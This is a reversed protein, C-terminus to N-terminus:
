KKGREREREREREEHQRMMVFLDLFDDIKGQDDFRTHLLDPRRVTLGNGFVLWSALYKSRMFDGALEWEDMRVNHHVVEHRFLTLSDITEFNCPPICKWPIPHFELHNLLKNEALEAKCCGAIVYINQDADNCQIINLPQAPHKESAHRVAQDMADFRQECDVCKVADRLRLALLGNITTENIDVTSIVGTGPPPINENRHFDMQHQRLTSKSTYQGCHKCRVMGHVTFLFDIDNPRHSQEWHKFVQEASSYRECRHNHRGYCHHCLYYIHEDFNDPEPAKTWNCDMAFTNAVFKFLISQGIHDVEHHNFYKQKTDYENGCISCYFVDDSVLYETWTSLMKLDPTKRHITQNITVTSRCRKRHSSMAAVNNLPISCGKCNLTLVISEAFIANTTHHNHRYGLQQECEAHAYLVHELTSKQTYYHKSCIMCEYIYAGHCHLHELYARFTTFKTKQKPCHACILEGIKSRDHKRVHASLLQRVNTAFTCKPDVCKFRNDLVQKHSTKIIDNMPNPVLAVTELYGSLDGEPLDHQHQLHQLIRRENIQIFNCLKCMHGTVTSHKFSPEDFITRINQLSCTQNHKIAKPLRYDCGFCYYLQEGTHNLWHHQWRVSSLDLIKDCFYCYARIGSILHPIMITTRKMSRLDAIASPSPRSIYIEANPHAFLLHDTLKGNFREPCIICSTNHNTNSWFM